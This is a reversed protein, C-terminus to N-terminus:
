SDDDSVFSSRGLYMKILRDRESMSVSGSGKLQTPYPETTHLPNVCFPGILETATRKGIGIEHCATLLDYNILQTVVSDHKYDPHKRVFKRIWAATTLVEGTARMRIFRLYNEVKNRTAKECKRSDLYALIMPILGPFYSGKGMLIQQISMKEAVDEYEPIGGVPEVLHRRFWFRETHAADRRHATKMNEDVKSLPIYTSLDFALLVRSVLLIFVSFAANEFDTLQIEMARFETRWGVHPQNSDQNNSKPPPPKWRLTQWNTSQINEFHDSETQDNLEIRDQYIVLPDRMFIHAIHRALLDDVGEHILTQYAKEDLPAELDNYKQTESSDNWIYNSVSAYRSKPLRTKGGGAMEPRPHNSMNPCHTGREQPTRCDVSGSIVDWRVDSNALQGKLIPTAATLALMIPAMPTLLDFLRRSEGIDRAQFTVQLCCCGMGYAMSDMVIEDDASLFLDFRGVNNKFSNKTSTSVSHDVYSIMEESKEITEKEEPLNEILYQNSHGIQQIMEARRKSKRSFTEKDIFIPIRVDVKEGRRLRINKTLTQFRPHPNTCEDPVWNSMANPGNVSYKPFTFDGVGMMPFSCITPAIEDKELVGNLRARRMRLNEEVRRLDQTFGAYPIKPTAEIMWSGYEPIWTCGDAERGGSDLFSREKQKLKTEIDSSRLSLKVTKDEHNVKLIMFEVEEGWFFNDERIDKVNNYISLFQQIGHERIYSLYPISDEWDLTKRHIDSPSKSM